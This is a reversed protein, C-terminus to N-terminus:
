QERTSPWLVIVSSISNSSVVSGLLVCVLVEEDEKQFIITYFSVREQVVICIGM